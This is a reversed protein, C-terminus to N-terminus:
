KQCQSARWLHFRHLAALVMSHSIDGKLVMEDVEKFAVLRTLLDEGEDPEPESIKEAGVGLFTHCRNDQYAPQADVFGLSILTEPAYGTEELLERRAAEAPAEGADIVGGPIELTVQGIGHRFQEVMVLEDEKTLAVVNVWDNCELVYTDHEKETRPNIVRDRRLLFISSDFITEKSLKKWDSVSM